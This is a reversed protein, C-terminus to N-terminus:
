GRNQFYKRQKESIPLEVKQMVQLLDEWVKRKETISDNHLLYAPHFTPMLSIGEFEEWKGRLRTISLRPQNLLGEMATAGLGVIVEPQIVAIQRLIHPRCRELEEPTPKRNGRSGEPMDPRYKVVNSIYVEERQLGMAAIMKDLLQGAAGVFPQGQRDEDAGPAEGIFMIRANIDGAGFVMNQARKFLEPLHADNLIEQRITELAEEKALGELSQSDRIPAATSREPKTVKQQQYSVQDENLRQSGTQLSRSSTKARRVGPEEQLAKLAHVTEPQLVLERQGLNECIQLYRIVTDKLSLNITPQAM